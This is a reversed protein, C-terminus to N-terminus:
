PCSSVLRNGVGSLSGAARCTRADTEIAHTFRRQQHVKDDLTSGNRSQFFIYTPTIVDGRNTLAHGLEHPLVRRRVDASSAVFLYTDEQQAPPLSIGGRLGPTSALGEAITAPDFPSIFYVEVIDFSTGTTSTLVVEEDAGPGDTFLGDRLINVGGANTPADEFSTSGVQIVRICAQTWAINSRDFEASVRGNAATTSGLVTNRMGDGSIDAFPEGADFVGNGEGPDGTGPMGDLGYDDFPENFVHVRIRVERRQDNPVRDCVPVGSAFAGGLTDITAQVGGDITAKHTRDNAGEDIVPGGARVSYVAFGDDQDAATVMSLDPATLLQTESMFVGTDPGTEALTIDHEADDAGGGGTLTGVKVTVAEAVAPNANGPLHTVRVVFREPDADIFTGGAGNLATGSHGGSYGSLENPARDEGWHGINVHDALAMASAGSDWTLIALESVTVRVADSCWDAPGAGDPDLEFMIQQDGITASPRIGELWLNVVRMGGTLGFDSAQYDGPAVYDGVPIVSASRVLNGNKKWIRLHGPAPVIGPPSTSFTAGAPNSASYTVRFLAVGLDVADAVELVMRVFGTESTNADDPTGIVGDLNYGDGFDAVHDGDNDNSNVWVIRGPLDTRDEIADEGSTRQPGFDPATADNDSDVDLDLIGVVITAQSVCVDYTVQPGVVTGTVELTMAGPPADALLSVTVTVTTPQDLGECDVVAPQVSAIVAENPPVGPLDASVEM